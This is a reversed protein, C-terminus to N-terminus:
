ADDGGRPDDALAEPDYEPECDDPEDDEPCATKWADYNPLREM